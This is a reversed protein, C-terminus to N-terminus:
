SENGNTPDCVKLDELQGLCIKNVRDWDVALRDSVMKTQSYMGNSIKINLDVKLASSFM